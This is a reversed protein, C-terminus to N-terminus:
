NGFHLKVGAFLINQDVEFRREWFTFVTLPTDKLPLSITTTFKADSDTAPSNALPYRLDTAIKLGYPLRSLTLGSILQNSRKSPRDPQHFVPGQFGVYGSLKPQLTEASAPLTLFAALAVALILTRM